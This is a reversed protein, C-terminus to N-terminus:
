IHINGTFKVVLAVFVNKRSLIGDRYPQKLVGSNQGTLFINEDYITELAVYKATSKPEFGAFYFEGM